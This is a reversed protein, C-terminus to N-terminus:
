RAGWKRRLEIFRLDTSLASDVRVIRNLTEDIGYPWKRADDPLVASLLALVRELFKDV